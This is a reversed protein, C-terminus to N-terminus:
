VVSKRDQEIAREFLALAAEPDYGPLDRRLRLEALMAPQRTANRDRAVYAELLAITEPRALWAQQQEATWRPLEPPEVSLLWEVRGYRDALDPDRPMGLGEEAAVRALALIRSSADPREPIGAMAQLRAAAEAAIGPCDRPDARLMLNLQRLVYGEIDHVHMARARSRAGAPMQASPCSAAAAELEDVTEWGLDPRQASASACLALLVFAAFATIRM